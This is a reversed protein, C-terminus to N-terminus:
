LILTALIANYNGTRRLDIHSGGGLGHSAQSLFMISAKTFALIYLVIYSYM